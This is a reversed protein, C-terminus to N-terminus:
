FLSYYNCFSTQSYKATLYIIFITCAKQFAAKTEKAVQMNDPISAKIIRSLTAIPIEATDLSQDAM